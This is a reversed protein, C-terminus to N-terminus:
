CQTTTLKGSFIVIVGHSERFVANKFISGIRAIGGGLTVKKAISYCSGEIQWLGGGIDVYLTASYPNKPKVHSSVIGNGSPLNTGFSPFGSFAVQIFFIGTQSGTPPFNSPDYATTSSILSVSQPTPSVSPFQLAGGWGGFSPVCVGTGASKMQIKPGSAYKKSNKQGKCAPPGADPIAGGDVYSPAVTAPSLDGAPVVSAGGACGALMLFAAAAALSRGTVSGNFTDYRM